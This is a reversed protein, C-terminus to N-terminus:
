VFSDLLTEQGSLGFGSTVLILAIQPLGDQQWDAVEMEFLCLRVNLPAKFLNLVRTEQEIAELMTQLVMVGAMRRKVGISFRESPSSHKSPPSSHFVPLM